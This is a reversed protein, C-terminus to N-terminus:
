IEKVIKKCGLVYPVNICKKVRKGTDIQIDSINIREKKM